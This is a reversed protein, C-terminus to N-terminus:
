IRQKIMVKLSGHLETTSRASLKRRERSIAATKLLMVKPGPKPLRQQYMYRNKVVVPIHDLLVYNLVNPLIQFFLKVIHVCKQSCKRWTVSLIHDPTISSPLVDCHLDSFCRLLIYVECRGATLAHTMAM